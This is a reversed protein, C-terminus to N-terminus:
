GDYNANDNSTLGTGAAWTIINGLGNRGEYADNEFAALMLPGPADLTQGNDSPGWSNTYIHTENNM